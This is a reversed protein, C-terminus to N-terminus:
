DRFNALPALAKRTKNKLIPNKPDEQKPNCSLIVLLAAMSITGQIKMIM